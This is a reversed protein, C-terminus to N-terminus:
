VGGRLMFNSFLFFFFIFFFHLVLLTNFSDQINDRWINPPWCLLRELTHVPSNRPNFYFTTEIMSHLVHTKLRVCFRFVYLIFVIQSLFISLQRPYWRALSRTGQRYLSFSSYKYNDTCVTKALWICMVSVNTPYLTKTDGTRFM